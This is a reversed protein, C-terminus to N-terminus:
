NWLLLRADEESTRPSKAAWVNPGVRQHYGCASTFLAGPDRLTMIDVGLAHPYFSKTFRRSKRHQAHTQTLSRRWILLEALTYNHNTDMPTKDANQQILAPGRNPSSLPRTPASPPKPVVSHQWGTSIGSNGALEVDTRSLQLILVDM